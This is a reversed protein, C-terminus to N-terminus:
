SLVAFQFPFNTCKKNTESYSPFIWTFSMWSSYNVLERPTKTCGSCSLQVIIIEEGQLQLSKKEHARLTDSKAAHIYRNLNPHSTTIYVLLSLIEAFLVCMCAQITNVFVRSFRCCGGSFSCIKRKCSLLQTFLFWNQYCYVNTTM